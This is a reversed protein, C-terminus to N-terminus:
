QALWDGPTNINLFRDMDPVSHYQVALSDLARRMKLINRELANRLEPLAQRHYVACLPEPGSRGLPVLCDLGAPLAVAADLLGALFGSDLRPMDCATILNWPSTTIELATVVGGLPGRGPLRDQVVPWRFHGYRLPDGIIVVTGAAEEVQTAAQELLTRGNRSLMAKDTGMRTSRGGALVFGAAPVCGPARM